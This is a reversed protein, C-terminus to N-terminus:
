KEPAANPELEGIVKAGDAPAPNEVMSKKLKKALAEEKKALAKEKATLKKEPVAMQANQAALETGLTKSGTVTLSRIMLQRTESNFIGRGTIKDGSVAWELSPVNMTVRMNPEIEFKQPRDGCQLAMSSEEIAIIRGVVRVEPDPSGGPQLPTINSMVHIGPHTLSMQLPTARRKLVDPNPMYLEVESLPALFTGDPTASAAFRVFAGPKLVARDAKGKYSVTSGRQDLTGMVFNGQPDKLRVMAGQAGEFSGALEVEGRGGPQAFISACPVAVLIAVTLASTAFLRLKIGRCGFRSDNPELYM